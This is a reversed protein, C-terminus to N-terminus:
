KIYNKEKFKSIVEDISVASTIRDYFSTLKGDEYFVTTPTGDFTIEAKLKGYDEDSLKSLDIYFVELQYDSIFQEMVPKYMSCASCTASGIVLPFTKNEEKLKNFEGYSIETYGILKKNCGSFLIISSIMAMLVIIIKKMNGSEKKIM